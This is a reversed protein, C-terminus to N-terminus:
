EPKRRARDELEVDLKQHLGSEPPLFLLERASEILDGLVVPKQFMRQVGLTALLERERRDLRGSVVITSLDELGETARLAAILELGNMYPMALDVIALDPRRGTAAHLGTEGDSVCQVDCGRLRRTLASAYLERDALEDEVVLIRPPQRRRAIARALDEAFSLPTPTRDEPRKALGRSLTKHVRWGLEPVLDDARPIPDHVLQRLIRAPDDGAFPPAGTLLEFATAALAYVDRRPRLAPPVSRATAVEPALYWPTGRVVWRDPEAELRHALGLDTLVVRATGREVILNSPKVDGHIWGAAHIVALATAASAIIPSASSAPVAGNALMVDASRGEVWEMVVLLGVESPALEYVAVVNPHRIAALARAEDTLTSPDGARLIKLAVRRGTTEDVAGYVRGSGGTGLLLEVRFRGIRSGRELVVNSM